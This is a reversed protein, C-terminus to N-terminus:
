DIVQLNEFIANVTSYNITGMNTGGEAVIQFEPNEGPIEHFKATRGKRFHM